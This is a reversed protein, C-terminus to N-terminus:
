WQSTARDRSPPWTPHCSCFIKVHSPSLFKITKGDLMAARVHDHLVDIILIVITIMMVDDAIVQILITKVHQIFM